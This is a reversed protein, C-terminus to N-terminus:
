HEVMSLYVLINVKRSNYHSLIYGDQITNTCSYWGVRTRRSVISVPRVVRQPLESLSLKLQLQQVCLQTHNLPAKKFYIYISVVLNVDREKALPIYSFIHINHIFLHFSCATTKTAFNQKVQCLNNLM